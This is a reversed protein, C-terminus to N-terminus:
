TLPSWHPGIKRLEASRDKGTVLDIGDATVLAHEGPFFSDLRTFYEQLGARGKEEYAQKADSVQLALSRSFFDHRGPSLRNRIVTTVTSGALCVILTAVFWLLIKVFISRM